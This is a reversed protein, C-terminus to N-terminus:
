DCASGAWEANPRPEHRRVNKIQMPITKGSLLEPTSFWLLEAEFSVASPPSGLLADL